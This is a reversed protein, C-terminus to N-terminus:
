IQKSSGADIQGDFELNKPAELRTGGALCLYVKKAALWSLSIRTYAMEGSPRSLNMLIRRSFHRGEHRPPIAPTM